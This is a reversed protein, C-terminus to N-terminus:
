DSGIVAGQRLLAPLSNPCGTISAEWRNRTIEYVAHRLANPRFSKSSVVGIATRLNPDIHADGPSETERVPPIGTAITSFKGAAGDVDRLGRDREESRDGSCYSLPADRIKLLKALQM